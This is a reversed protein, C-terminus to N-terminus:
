RRGSTTSTGSSRFNAVTAATNNLARSDDADCYNNTLSGILCSSGTDAPLGMPESLLWLNSKCSFTGGPCYSSTLRRNPNAWALLRTCSFKQTTCADNYAMVSRWRQGPKWNVFGHAYSYPLRSASMYWDHQAGM